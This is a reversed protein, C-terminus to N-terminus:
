LKTEYFFCFIYGKHNFFFLFLGTVIPPQTLLIFQSKAKQSYMKLENIAIVAVEYVGDTLNLNQFSAYVFGKTYGKVIEEESFEDPGTLM